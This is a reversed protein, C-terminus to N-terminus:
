RRAQAQAAKAAEEAVVEAALDGGPKWVPKNNKTVPRLGDDPNANTPPAAAAPPATNAGLAKAVLAYVSQHGAMTANLTELTKSVANLSAAVEPPLNSSAAKQTPVAAPAPAPAPPPPKPKAPAAPASAAPPPPPPPAPTAAQEVDADGGADDDVEKVMAALLSVVGKLTTLRAKSLKRGVKSVEVAGGMGSLIFSKAVKDALRKSCNAMLADQVVMAKTSDISPPPAAEAQPAPEGDATPLSADYAEEVSELMEAVQGIASAIEPPVSAGEDVGAAKVLEAIKSLGGISQTLAELIADKAAQPMAIAVPAPTEPDIADAPPPPPTSADTVDTAKTAGAEATPTETETGMSKVQKALAKTLYFGELIAPTDVISAETVRLDTLRTAAKKAPAAGEQAM